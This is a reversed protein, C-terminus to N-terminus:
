ETSEEEALLLWGRAGEVMIVGEVPFSTSVQLAPKGALKNGYPDRPNFGGLPPARLRKVSSVNLGLQAWDIALTIIKDQLGFNAIAILARVGKQVYTTIYIPDIINRIAAPCSNSDISCNRAWSVELDGPVESLAPGQRLEYTGQKTVGACESFPLASCAREAAELTSESKCPPPPSGPGPGACGPFYGSYPGSWNSPQKPPGRGDHLLQKNVEKSSKDDGNRYVVKVAPNADFWGSMTMNHIGISDWLHWLRGAYTPEDYRGTMGFVMGRFPNPGSSQVCDAKSTCDGGLMDSTLGYPLGSIETLWYDAPSNYRFSEGFWLSDVFPLMHMYQIAPGAGQKQPDGNGSHFDIAASPGIAADLTRRIRLM